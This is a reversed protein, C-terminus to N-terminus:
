YRRYDQQRSRKSKGHGKDSDPTHSRKGSGKWTRHGSYNSSSAQSRYNQWVNGWNDRESRVDANSRIDEYETPGTLRINPDLPQSDRRDIVHLQAWKHDITPDVTSDPLNEPIDNRKRITEPGSGELQKSWGFRRHNFNYGEPLGREEDASPIM